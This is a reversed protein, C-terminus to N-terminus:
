NTKFGIKYEEHIFPYGDLSTTGRNSIYFDYETNPKLETTELTLVTKDENLGVINKLPFHEKGNKSFNISVKDNMPKSFVIRIQKLDPRVKQSGNEFEMIKIVGPQNEKYVSEMQEASENFYHSKDLFDMVAAKNGFDLEVIEKIAAKKDQVSEYYKKSIAYGVFYGLDPHEHTASNYFWNDFNQGLMEKKFKAQVSDYNKFGYDLYHTNFKKNLSLEAIFDCSGEKIAMALVNVQGEKQFTHIFEHVTVQELRSPASFKFMDQMAKSEFESTVTGTDGVIREIGLLINAGYATGGSKLAGITYYINGKSDNPYLKKLNQLGKNVKNIRNQDIITNKRISTWFKPYKKLAKLYDEENFEKKKMFINLGETAKDLFLQKFIVSQNAPNDKIQDYATWFNNIDSTYVKQAKITMSILLIGILLPLKKM